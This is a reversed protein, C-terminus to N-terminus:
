CVTYSHLDQVADIGGVLEHSWGGDQADGTLSFTCVRSCIYKM